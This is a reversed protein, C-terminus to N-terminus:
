IENTYFQARCIFKFKNDNLLNLCHPAGFDLTYQSLSQHLYLIFYVIVAKTNTLTDQM